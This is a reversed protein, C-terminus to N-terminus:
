HNMLFEEARIEMYSLDSGKINFGMHGGYKPTELYFNPNTNAEDYPYCKDGLIPDNLANIMLTPVKINPIHSISSSESYFEDLNTYKHFPLSYLTNFESFTKISEFPLNKFEKFQKAKKRLKLKLKNIFSKNYILHKPKEVEEVSNKLDCSVSFVIGHTIRNDITQSGLYKTVLGGGMSFGVLVVQQYSKSLLHGIVIGLDDTEGYAYFKPLRNMEESCSRYNWALIDWEKDHFYKAFRKVYHRNTDGEMGHSIIMAKNNGNTLWDLDLFDGDRLELRERGYHVGEVKNFVSPVITEFHRNYLYYPNASYHSKLVPM